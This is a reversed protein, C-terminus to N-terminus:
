NMHVTSTITFGLCLWLVKKHVHKKKYVHCKYAYVPEPKSTIRWTSSSDQKEWTRKTLIKLLVNSLKIEIFNRIASNKSAEGNIGVIGNILKPSKLWDGQKDCGERKDNQCFNALRM